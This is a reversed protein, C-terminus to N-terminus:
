YVLFRGAQLGIPWRGDAFLRYKLAFLQTPPVRALDALAQQHVAMLAAARAARGWAPDTIALRAVVAKVAQDIAHERAAVARAVAVLLQDETHAMSAVDWLREREEEEFDWWGSDRDDAHLAAVTEHWHAVVVIEARGALAYPRLMAAIAEHQAPALETGVREFWREATM